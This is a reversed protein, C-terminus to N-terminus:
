AAVQQAAERGRETLGWVIVPSNSPSLARRGTDAILGARMLDLRRKGLSTQQRGALAALRFDDLGEPHQAHLQLVLWLDTNRRSLM